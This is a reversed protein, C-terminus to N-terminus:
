PHPFIPVQEIKGRPCPEYQPLSRSALSRGIDIFPLTAVPGKFNTIEESASARGKPLQMVIFTKGSSLRARYYIRYSADGHLRDLSCLTGEAISAKSIMKEVLDNM